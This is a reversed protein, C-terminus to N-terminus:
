IIEFSEEPIWGQMGIDVQVLAWGDMNDMVRIKLGEHIIFLDTSRSAPESKVYVNPSFIVAQTVSQEEMNKYITLGLSLSGIFLILIAASFLTQRAIKKRIFIFGIGFLLSIWFIRITLWSWQNLTYGNLFRSFWAGLVSRKVPEVRDNIRLNALKLNYQIDSDGPKLHLAREYNLIAPAIEGTKYYANALNYYIYASSYGSDLIGTYLLISKEYESNSYAENAENFQGINSNATLSFVMLLCLPIHLLKLKM